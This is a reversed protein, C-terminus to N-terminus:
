SRARLKSLIRAHLAANGGGVVSFREKVSMAPNLPGGREDSFVAGAQKAILYGAAMGPTDGAGGPMFAPNSQGGGMYQDWKWMMDAAWYAAAETVVYKLRPFREFAGSFLLHWMPRAAWWVVEALYAGMNPGYEEMPAEGSHTHVPLGAEACAAWVPDYSADNYPTRARWM